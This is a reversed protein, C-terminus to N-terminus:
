SCFASLSLTSLYIYFVVQAVPTGLVLTSIFLRRIGPTTGLGVRLVWPCVWPWVLLSGYICWVFYMGYLGYVGNVDYVMCWVGYVGYVDCVMCVMCWVCMYVSSSKPGYGDYVLCVMCWIGYVVCWVGYVDCVMCVMCLVCWVYLSPIPDM